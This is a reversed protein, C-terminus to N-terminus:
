RREMQSAGIDRRGTHKRRCVCGGNSWRFDSPNERTGASPNQTRQSDDARSLSLISPGPPERRGQFNNEQRCQAEAAARALFLFAPTHPPTAHNGGTLLGGGPGSERRVGELDCTVGATLLCVRAIWLVIPWTASSGGQYGLCWWRRPCRRVALLM